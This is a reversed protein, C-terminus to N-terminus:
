AADPRRLDDIPRSLDIVDRQIATTPPQLRAAAESAATALTSKESRAVPPRLRRLKETRDLEAQEGESAVIRTGAAAASTPPKDISTMRRATQSWDKVFGSWFCLNAQVVDVPTRCKALSAPYSAAAAMRRTAFGMLEQQTQGVALSLASSMGVPNFEGTAGASARWSCDSIQKSENASM